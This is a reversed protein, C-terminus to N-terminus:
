LWAGGFRRRGASAFGTEEAPRERRAYTSSKGVPVGARSGACGDVKEIVAVALEAQSGRKARRFTYVYAVLEGQQGPSGTGALPELSSRLRPELLMSEFPRRSELRPAEEGRPAEDGPCGSDHM